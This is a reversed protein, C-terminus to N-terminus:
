QRVVDRIAGLIRDTSPMWLDELNSAFPVPTADAAVLV